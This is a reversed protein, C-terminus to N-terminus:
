YVALPLFERFPFVYIAGSPCLRECLYCTMCDDTYAIYARGEANIRIIDVPCSHACLRCGICKQSDIHSIMM